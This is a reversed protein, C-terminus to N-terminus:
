LVLKLLITLGLIDVWKAKKAGSFVNTVSNNWLYAGVLSVIVIVIVFSVLQILMDVVPSNVNSFGEKEDCHAFSELTEKIAQQCGGM